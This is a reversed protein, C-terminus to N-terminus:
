VFRFAQVQWGGRPRFHALQLCLSSNECDFHIERLTIDEGLQRQSALRQGGFNGLIHPHVILLREIKRLLNKLAMPQRTNEIALQSLEVSLAVNNM